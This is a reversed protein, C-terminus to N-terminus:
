KIKELFEKQEVNQELKTKIIKKKNRSYVKKSKKSIMKTVNLKSVKKTKNKM